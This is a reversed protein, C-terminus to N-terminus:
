TLERRFACSSAIEDGSACGRSQRTRERPHLGEALRAVSILTAGLLSSRRSLGIHPAVPLAEGGPRTSRFAFRASTLAPLEIWSPASELSVPVLGPGARPSLELDDSAAFTWEISERKAAPGVDASAFRPLELEAPVGDLKREAAWVIETGSTARGRLRLVLRREGDAVVDWSALDDSKVTRVTWGEPLAVEHRLPGLEKVTYRSRASVAARGPEILALLSTAIEVDGRVAEIAVTEGEGTGYAHYIRDPAGGPGLAFVRELDKQSARSMGDLIQNSFRWRESRNLGVFGEQRAAGELILGPVQVRGTVSALVGRVRLEVEAAPRALSIQLVAPAGAPAGGALNWAALGNGAVDTVMWGGLVRLNIAAVPEGSVRVRDFRIVELGNEVPALLTLSTSELQSGKRGEISPLTWQVDIRGAAGVDLVFADPEGPAPFYASPSTIRAGKPGAFVVSTAPAALVRTAVQHVGADSKVEGTAEIVIEHRGATQTPLTPTPGSSADGGAQAIGAERGDIMVRTIHGDFPLPLATWRDELFPGTSCAGFGGCAAM